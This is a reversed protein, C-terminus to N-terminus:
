RLKHLQVGRWARLMKKQRADMENFWEFAKRFQIPLGSTVSRIAAVKGMQGQAILLSADMYLKVKVEWDLRAKRARKGGKAKSIPFRSEMGFASHMTSNPDREVEALAALIGDTLWYPLPVNEESTLRLADVLASKEGKTFSERHVDLLASVQALSGGRFSYNSEMAGSKVRARVGTRLARSWDAWSQQLALLENEDDSYQPILDAFSFPHDKTPKWGPIRFAVATGPKQPQSEADAM